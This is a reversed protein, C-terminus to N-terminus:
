LLAVIVIRAGPHIQRFIVDESVCKQPYCARIAHVQEITTETRTEMSEM